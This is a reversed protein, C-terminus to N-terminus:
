STNSVERRRKRIASYFLFGLALLILITGGITYPETGIGGTAPLEYNIFIFGVDHYLSEGTGSTLEKAPKMLINSVTASSLKGSRYAAVADSDLSDDPTYNPRCATYKSIDHSGSEFKVAYTGADLGTFRYRGLTYPEVAAASAQIDVMQGTEITVPTTTGPYYVPSYAGNAYKLLSVKVGSILQEDPDRKNDLSADMWALGEMVRNVVSTKAYSVLSEQSLYNVLVDSAQGGELEMTVHMKLTESSPLDGVAVIAIIQQSQDVGAPFAKGDATEFLGYPRGQVTNATASVTLPIWDAHSAFDINMSKLEESIMGAYQPDTTYYFQFNKLLATSDAQSAASGASFETLVLTGHFSSNNVGNYPLAELIVANQKVTSSNNGVNLTFGIPDWLNVLLQDALKALSLAGTKSIQISYDSINGYDADYDRETEDATRITVSSTLTELNKVDTAEDGPTGISCSFYLNETWVTANQAMLVPFSWQITTTGDANQTLSDLKLYYGSAPATDTEQIGGIVTGQTRHLPDQTYTGGLFASGPIYTLGAPITNTIYAITQKGAYGQGYEIKPKLVFDVVRQDQSMDYTKKANGSSESQATQQTISTKYPVVLCCDQYYRFGLGPNHGNEDYTAKQVNKVAGSDTLELGGEKMEGTSNTRWYDQRWSPVTYDKTFNGTDDLMTKDNNAKSPFVTQMYTVYDQETLTNAPKDLAAYHSEIQDLVDCLRWMYSNRVSMYVQNPSCDAKIRGVVYFMLNGARDIKLGRGEQLAAVPTKGEVKLASLNTYWVLDDATAKKMEEDDTWGTGDPKAGWLITNQSEWGEGDVVEGFYYANGTYGKEPDFFEDDWKLLQDIAVPRFENTADSCTTMSFIEMKTGPTAWDGDTQFCGDTLPENWSSRPNRRYAMSASVTGPNRLYEAYTRTDDATSTQVTVEQGNEAFMHLDSVTATVQFQGEIGYADVAYQKNEDLSYHPQVVWVEGASFIAREIEWWHDIEAPDYFTTNQTTAGATTYPLQTHDFVFDTVTIYLENRNDPNAAFAWTGGDACSDHTKAIEGGLKNFPVYGQYIGFSSTPRQDYSNSDEYDNGGGSYFIPQFKADIEPNVSGSAPKFTSSLTLKFTIPHETSPLQVGRMGNKGGNVELMIGLSGARGQIIGFEKNLANENGTSFDFVAGRSDSPNRIAINFKPTASVTIEPLALTKYEVGHDATTCGIGSDTVISTPIGGSYATGVQNHELWLTATPAVTDGNNMRFVRIAVTLDNQSAGIAAPNEANPVLLFSGRLVQGVNEVVVTEYKLEQATQLWLTSETDFVAQEQTYPLIFEFYLKGTKYGSINQDAAEKRLSTFFEFTYTASDFTRLVLDNASTDNGPGEEEDFPATGTSYAAGEKLQLKSIYAFDGDLRDKVVSADSSDAYMAVNWIYELETLKLANTVKPQLREGLQSYAAYTKQVEPYLWTLYTEEAADDGAAAYQALTQDIEDASPLADIQAIVANVREAEAETLDSVPQCESSHTHETLACALAAGDTAYCAATHSHEELGCIYTSEATIAPLILAYTTCFVVVCALASVIRKWIHRRRNQVNYHKVQRPIQPSM